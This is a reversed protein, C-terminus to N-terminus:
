AIGARLTRHFEICWDVLQQALNDDRKQSASNATSATEEAKRLIGKVTRIVQALTTGRAQEVEVYACVADRLTFRTVTAVRTRDTLVQHLETLLTRCAQDVKDTM